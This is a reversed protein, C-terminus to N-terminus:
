LERGMLLKHNNLRLDVGILRTGENGRLANFRSCRPKEGKAGSKNVPRIIEKCKLKDANM